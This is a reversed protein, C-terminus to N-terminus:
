VALDACEDRAEQATLREMFVPTYEGVWAGTVNFEVFEAAEEETAGRAVLIERCKALDYIAVPRDFQAGLGVFADDFGDAFLTEPHIRSM